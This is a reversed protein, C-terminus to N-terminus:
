FLDDIQELLKKSKIQAVVNALRAEPLAGLDASGIEALIKRFLEEDLVNVAYYKAFLLRNTLFDPSRAIAAEFHRRGREPDGGAIKPRGAYYVGFFVDSGAYQYGGDLELVREMFRAAKPLVALAEPNNKDLNTWGAWAYATWYLGPVDKARAKALAEKMAKPKLGEIGALRGRGLLRLGYGAARRYFGKAREPEQDEFFLFAYGTYGEALSKLLGPNKLDNKLLAELLKLQGAMASQAHGPDPEEYFASAGRVLLDATTRVAITRLSCASLGATILFAAALSPLKRMM